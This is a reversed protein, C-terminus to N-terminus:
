DLIRYGPLPEANEGFAQVGHRHDIVDGGEDGVGVPAALGDPHVM